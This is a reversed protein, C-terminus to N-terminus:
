SVPDWQRKEKAQWALKHHRSLQGHLQMRSGQRALPLKCMDGELKSMPSDDSVPVPSLSFPAWLKACSGCAEELWLIHSHTLTLADTSPWICSLNAGSILAYVPSVIFNSLVFWIVSYMLRFAWPFTTPIDSPWASSAYGLLCCSCPLWRISSSCHSDSNLDRPHM